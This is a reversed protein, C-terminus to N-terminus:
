AAMANLKDTIKEIDQDRDGFGRKRDLDKWKVLQEVKEMAEVKFTFAWKKEEEWERAMSEVVFEGNQETITYLKMCMEWWTSGAYKSEFNKQRKGMEDTLKANANRTLNEITQRLLETPAVAYNRKHKELTAFMEAATLTKMKGM